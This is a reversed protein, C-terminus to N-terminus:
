RGQLKKIAQRVAVPYSAQKAILTLEARPTARLVKDLAAGTVRTNMLLSRRLSSVALWSANATITEVLHKPLKPSRSIRVVEPATIRPNHLLVDWVVRGYVSELAVRERYDGERAVRLQEATTYHRVRSYLDGPTEQGKSKKAQAFGRLREVTEEGFDTLALGVGVGPEEAKVYVAEAALKLSEGSDPHILVLECTQHESVEPRGSVFARGAALNSEIEQEM